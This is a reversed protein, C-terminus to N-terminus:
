NADNLADFLAEKLTKQVEDSLAQREGDTVIFFDEAREGITTIKAAQLSVGERAFVAGVRALLGPTDLAVLELLTRRGTRTPLFSVQTKVNFAMLKRSARKVPITIPGDQTLALTVGERIKEHRDPQIAENHSDLVMFTDLAFGDKSTMIQADHVSLNKKDLAAVVRAFLSPRDQSYVFIETGGRTANKSVLVLPEDGEHSLIHESHWAIQKHTHRLFYDAKFRQWLLEIERPTHGHKRLLASALHQNHRIRERIDPPNELGRRLAKQTSYYLEALLTRKWSNWLEPNTANIDAVTLCILYDLREEDRVKQAFETIVEPDYIDRRQATVSMLLHNGVLWSVLNAEPRSFGHDICFSYAEEAGIESHDGGRGKGIDHFIAALLLLEPKALRPYVDCCIPHKDRNEEYSYGNIHKLLRITHEDVTYAHFLDFQMQGVIQSWQPLYASLVGHKHMLPFAKHLANPHRTLAIFKEKAEPVDCLFRNLRRRATRLQRLTPASISEISKDNAIHLFMDIITDPRAQFLAPKRAEIQRGHRQFDDSLVEITKSDPENEIAQAFLRILMKNLESVRGLTRYFDKMMLEIGRNGEGQYGLTEAVSPQHAFTLRNDYRRLELHLAFRIRWLMTQCEDLERFEADTLFGYKSMERLSTAGFHRRAIWSLTHIDRLGGPSSKIDPELNYATDHYRAHREKQEKVKAKFFRESPWFQESHIRNKLEHFIRESGCLLRSEQLNTAVTLDDLGVDMCEALTRVSHGVELKLDWLLTVFESLRTQYNKDIGNESLILLDIDSLPHLERRGYGGVAILSLNPHHHFEFHQWLRELLADIYDSRQYVLDTVPKRELFAAKQQEGFLSLQNKLETLNLQEATLENPSLLVNNM